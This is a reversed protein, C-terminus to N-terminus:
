RKFSVVISLLVLSKKFEILMASFVTGSLAAAPGPLVTSFNTSGRWDFILKMLRKVTPCIESIKLVVFERYQM